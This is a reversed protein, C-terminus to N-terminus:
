LVEQIDRNITINCYKCFNTFINISSFNTNLQPLIELLEYAVSDGYIEDYIHIHNRSLQTGDPNIHPPSNVELRVMPHLKYASARLQTKYKLELTGRRDYDLHFKDLSSISTLDYIKQAQQNPLIISSTFEKKLNLLHQFTQNDM